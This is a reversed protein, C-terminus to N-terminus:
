GSRMSELRVFLWDYSRGQKHLVTKLLRDSLAFGDDALTEQVLTALPDYYRWRLGSILRIIVLALGLLGKYAVIAKLSASRQTQVAQNQVM